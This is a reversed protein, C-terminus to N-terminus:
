TRPGAYPLAVEEGSDGALEAAVSLEQVLRGFGAPCLRGGRGSIAAAFGGIQQVYGLHFLGDDPLSESPQALPVPDGNVQLETGPSVESRIVSEPSSIQVSIDSGENIWGLDITGVFRDAYRVEIHAGVVVGEPTHTLTCRLGEPTSSSVSCSIAFARPGLQRVASTLSADSPELYFRVASHDIGSLQQGRQAASLLVPAHLLNEGYCLTSSNSEALAILTDTQLLSPGLPGCVLTPLRRAIAQEILDGVREAALADQGQSESVIVLGDIKSPLSNNSFPRVGWPEALLEADAIQPAGIAVLTAGVASHVSAAQTTVANGTGFVALKTM